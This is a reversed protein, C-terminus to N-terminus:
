QGTRPVHVDVLDHDFRAVLRRASPDQAHRLAPGMVCCVIRSPEVNQMQSSRPSTRSFVCPSNASSVRKRERSSSVMSPLGGSSSEDPLTSYKEAAYKRRLGSVLLSGSSETSILRSRKTPLPM